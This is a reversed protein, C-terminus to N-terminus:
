FLGFHSYSALRRFAYLSTVPEAVMNRTGGTISPQRIYTQVFQPHYNNLSVNILMISKVTTAAASMRIFILVRSIQCLQTEYVIIILGAVEIVIEYTHLGM